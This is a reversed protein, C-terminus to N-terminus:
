RRLSQWQLRSLSRWLWELPGYRFRALWPGPWALMTALVPPALWCLQARNLQGFLGMGGFVVAMVLSTGLYNTFAVQGAAALRGSLAGGPRLLLLLGSAYGAVVLPRVPVTLAYSFLVVQRPDFDRAVIAWALLAYVPLGVALGAATWRVYHGHCWGGTLM